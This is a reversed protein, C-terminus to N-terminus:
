EASADLLEGARWRHNRRLGGSLAAGGDARPTGWEFLGCFVRTECKGWLVSEGDSQRAGDDRSDRSVRFRCNKGSTRVGLQCRCRKGRAGYRDWGFCIRADGRLGVSSLRDGRRIRWEGARPIKRELGFDAVM